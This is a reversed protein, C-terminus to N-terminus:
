DASFPRRRLLSEVWESPMALMLAVPDIGVDAMTNLEPVLRALEYQAAKDGGAARELLLGYAATATARAAERAPGPAAGLFSGYARQAALVREDMLAIMSRM